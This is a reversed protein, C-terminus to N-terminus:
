KKTWISNETIIKKQEFVTKLLLKGFNLQRAHMYFPLFVCFSFINKKCLFM